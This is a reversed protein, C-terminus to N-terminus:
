TTEMSSCYCSENNACYQWEMWHCWNQADLLHLQITCRLCENWSIENERRATSQGFWINRLTVEHSAILQSVRIVFIFNTFRIKWQFIKKEGCTKNDLYSAKSMEARHSSWCRLRILSLSKRKRPVFQRSVNKMSNKKLYISANTLLSLTILNLSSTPFYRM